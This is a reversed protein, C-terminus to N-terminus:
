QRGVGLARGELVERLKEQRYAFIKELSPRVFLRHALSGGFHSYTVRDIVNTGGPAEEFIHEHRWV